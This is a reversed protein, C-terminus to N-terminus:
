LAIVNFVQEAPNIPAGSINGIRAVVTGATACHGVGQCILDAELSPAQIIFVMGPVAGAVTLDLALTTANTISGPNATVATIIPRMGSGVIIPM